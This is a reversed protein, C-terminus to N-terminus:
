VLYNSMKTIDTKIEQVLSSHAQVFSAKRSEITAKDNAVKAVLNAHAQSQEEIEATLKQIQAQKDAISAALSKAQAEDQGIRDTVQEGVAENFKRLEEDLVLVYHNGTDVLKQKTTMAKATAFVAKYRRQEDPIDAALEQVASKFKLYDYDSLRNSEIAESLADRAANTAETNASVSATFTQAPAVSAVPAAAQTQASPITPEEVIFASKLAGFVSKKKTTGAEVGM